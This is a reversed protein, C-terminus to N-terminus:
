GDMLGLVKSKLGISEINFIPREYRLHDSINYM